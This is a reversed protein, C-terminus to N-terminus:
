VKTLRFVLGPILYNHPLYFLIYKDCFFINLFNDVAGTKIFFYKEKASKQECFIKIFIKAQYIITSTSM